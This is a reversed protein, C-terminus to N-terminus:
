PPTSTSQTLEPPNDNIDTIAILATATSSLGFNLNGEMDTAEVIVTYQPVRERDLGAAVTVIDGTERNITFMNPIPIHPTQQLIRYHVMGNSTTIDDADHATVTMVTTGPKSGEMVSGNYIQNKFEPRNDNMDIVFIYLDVPQEVQNGNMDVAHARLHYSSREERDLPKTVYMKGKEPDINFVENPPQDAGVGTISYRINISRDKDSRISVLMQPFPGRSNEPVNIPPIVWDRKQRRLESSSSKQRPPFRIVVEQTGTDEQGRAMYNGTMEELELQVITEWTHTDDTTHATVTFKIPTNLTFVERQTYVSGDTEIRFRPDSSDM